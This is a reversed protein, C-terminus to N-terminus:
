GVHKIKFQTSAHHKEAKRDDTVQKNEGMFMGLHFTNRVAHGLMPRLRRHVDPIYRGGRWSDEMAIWHSSCDCKSLCLQFPQGKKHYFSHFLLFELIILLKNAVTSWLCKRADHIEARGLKSCPSSSPEKGDSVDSSQWERKEGGWHLLFSQQCYRALAKSTICVLGLSSRAPSQGATTREAYNADEKSRKQRRCSAGKCIIEPCPKYPLM